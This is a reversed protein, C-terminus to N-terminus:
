GEQIAVPVVADARIDGVRSQAITGPQAMGFLTASDWVPGVDPPAVDVKVHGLGAQRLSLRVHARALDPTNNTRSLHALWVWRPGDDLTALLAQATQENSLHGTPSLIRRKLSWPYPGLRLREVDHNAEIVLLHAGRMAEMMEVRAEGTDTVVCARWAGTALVYGCPAVADHSIPFGRVELDHLKAARGVPLEMREVPRGQDQEEMVPKPQELVAKLTRPDAVLPIAYRRAFAEASRAHDAHEHTLLVASLMSPTVGAQRLRSVLPRIPIGADVLVATRGTQILVANGSSGSGLSVVRV